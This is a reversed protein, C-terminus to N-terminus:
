QLKGNIYINLASLAFIYPVYVWDFGFVLLYPWSHISAMCQVCGAFPTYLKGIYKEISAVSELIMGPATAEYFGNCYLSNLFLLGIIDFIEM